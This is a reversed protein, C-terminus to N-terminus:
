QLSVMGDQLNEKVFSLDGDSTNVGINLSWWNM